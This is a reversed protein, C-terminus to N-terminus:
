DLVISGLAENVEDQFLTAALHEIIEKEYFEVDRWREQDGYMEEMVLNEAIESRGRSVVRWRPPTIDEEGQILVRSIQDRLINELDRVNRPRFPAVQNIRLYKGVKPKEFIKESIECCLDAVLQNYEEKCRAIIFASGNALNRLVTKTNSADIEFSQISREMMEWIQEAFSHVLEDIEARETPYFREVSEVARLEQGSDMENIALESGLQSSEEASAQRLAEVAVKKDPSVHCQKSDDFPLMDPPEINSLDLMPILPHPMTIDSLDIVSSEDNNWKNEKGSLSNENVTNKGCESETANNLLMVDFSENLVSGLVSDLLSDMDPSTDNKIRPSLSKVVSRRPSKPMRMVAAFRSSSRYPSISVKEQKSKVLAGNASLESSDSKEQVSLESLMPTLPNGDDDSRVDAETFLSATTERWTDSPTLEEMKIGEGEQSDKREVREALHSPSVSIVVDEKRSDSCFSALSFVKQHRPKTEDSQSSGLDSFKSDQDAMDTVERGVESETIERSSDIVHTNNAELVPQGVVDSTRCPEGSSYSGCKAKPESKSRIEPVAFVPQFHGNISELGEGARTFNASHSGMELECQGTESYFPPSIADLEEHNATIAQSVVKRVAEQRWNRKKQVEFADEKSVITESVEASGDKSIGTRSFLEVAGKMIRYMIKDAENKNESPPSGKHVMDEFLASARTGTMRSEEGSVDSVVSNGSSAEVSHAAIHSEVVEEDKTAISNLKDPTDAKVTEEQCVVNMEPFGEVITDSTSIEARQVVGTLPSCKNSPPSWSTVFPHSSLAVVDKTDEQNITTDPNCIDKTKYAVDDFPLNLAVNSLIHLGELGTEDDETSNSSVKESHQDLSESATPPLSYRFSTSSQVFDSAENVPSMQQSDKGVSELSQTSIADSFSRRHHSRLSTISCKGVSLGSRSTGKPTEQAVAEDMGRSSSQQFPRMNSSTIDELLSLDNKTTKIYEDYADIQKQLSRREISSCLRTREDINHRLEEARERKGELAKRMETLSSNPESLHEDRQPHSLAHVQRNQSFVKPNLGRETASSPSYRLGSIRSLHDAPGGINAITRMITNELRSAIEESNDYSRSSIRSAKLAMRQKEKWEASGVHWEKEDLTKNLRNEMATLLNISLFQLRARIRLHYRWFDHFSVDWHRSEKLKSRLMKCDDIFKNEDAKVIELEETQNEKKYNRKRKDFEILGNRCFEKLTALSEKTVSRRDRMPRTRKQVNIDCEGLPGRISM